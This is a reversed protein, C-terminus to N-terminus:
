GEHRRLEAVRTFRGRRRKEAAWVRGEQAHAAIHPDVSGVPQGGAVGPHNNALDALLGGGVDSALGVGGGEAERAVAVDVGGIRHGLLM